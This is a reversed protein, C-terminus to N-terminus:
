ALQLDTDTVIFYRGDADRCSVTWDTHDTVQLKTDAPLTVDDLGDMEYVHAENKTIVTDGAKFKM